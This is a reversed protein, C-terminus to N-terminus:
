QVDRGGEEGGRVDRTVQKDHFTLLATEPRRLRWSDLQLPPAVRDARAGTGEPLGADATVQTPPDTFMRGVTFSVLTPVIPRLLETVLVHSCRSMIPKKGGSLSPATTRKPQAAPLDTNSM